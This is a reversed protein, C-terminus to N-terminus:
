ARAEGAGVPRWHPGLLKRMEEEVAREQGRYVPTRALRLLAEGVYALTSNRRPEEELRQGVRLAKINSGWAEEWARVRERCWAGMRWSELELRAEGLERALRAAQEYATAAQTPSGGVVYAGAVALLAYLRLVGGWREGRGQAQAAVAEGQRYERVAERVQGVALHGSGLSMHVGVVQQGWGQQQALGLAEQGLETARGLDEKGLAGHLRVLTHRMRGQATDLRGAALSVEEMMGAIDLDAVHTQVKPGLAQAVPELEREETELCVLRVEEGRLRQVAEKMWEVWAGKAYVAQPWLVVVINRFLPQHHAHFSVATELLLEVDDGGTARPVQWTSDLGQARLEERGAEYQGVWEEVLARGYNGAQGFPATLRLFLDPTVGLTTDEVRFFSEVAQAEEPALVWRLLRAEPDEAFASWQRRLKEM